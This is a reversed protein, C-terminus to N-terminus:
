TGFITIVGKEPISVTLTGGPVVDVPRARVDSQRATTYTAGYTGPVLGRITLSGGSACKAVVVYRNDRNIFALPDVDADDSTADIRVAGPRIYRFYQRLFTATPSLTLTPRAPNRDDVAYYTSGNHGDGRFALTYQQWASNRGTKLDQHLTEYNAGIHELMATDLGLQQARSAITQLTAVSAGSYRHYSLERWFPSRARALEDVYTLAKAMNTTSPAIFRPTIGMSRLRRETATMAARVASPSWRGPAQGNDPELIIEWGDPVIGYANKLHLYVAQVFEAYEEPNDHVYEGSWLPATFAVYNVNLWLRQGSAELRRRFPLVVREVVEDLESFIFGRPNLVMPDSNDNVTAYRLTKFQAESITHNRFEQWTDRTNESGSPVELRLRTLGFDNVALDFLQAKYADFAPSNDQGAQATAEWGTITQYKTSPSLTIQAEDGAAAVTAFSSRSEASSGWRAAVAVGLVLVAPLLLRQKM